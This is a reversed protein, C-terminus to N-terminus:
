IKLIFWDLFQVRFFIKSVFTKGNSFQILVKHVNDLMSKPVKLNEIQADIKVNLEKWQVIFQRFRNFLTRRLIQRINDTSLKVQIINLNPNTKKEKRKGGSVLGHSKRLHTYVQGAVIEENCVSCRLM